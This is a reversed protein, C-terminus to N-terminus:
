TEYRSILGSSLYVEAAEHVLAATLPAAHERDLRDALSVLQEYSARGPRLASYIDLVQENSLTTLEAARRFTQAVQVYGAKEAADAQHRLTDGGIRFDEVTLEDRLLAEMTLEDLPRGSATRIEDDTM